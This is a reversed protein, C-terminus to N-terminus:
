SAASLECALVIQFGVIRYNGPEIILVVARSVTSTDGFGGALARRPTVVVRVLQRVFVAAAGVTEVRRKYVVRNAVTQYLVGGTGQGRGREVGRVLKLDAGVACSDRSVREVLRAVLSNLLGGGSDCGIGPIVFILRDKVQERGFESRM